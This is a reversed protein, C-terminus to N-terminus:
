LTSPYELLSGFKCAGGDHEIDFDFGDV